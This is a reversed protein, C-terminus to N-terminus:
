TVRLGLPTSRIIQVTIASLAFVIVASFLNEINPSIRSLVAIFVPHILYIGLSFPVLNQVFVPLRLHLNLALLILPLAVAYQLVGHYFGILLAGVLCLSCFIVGGTMDHGAGDQSGSGWIAVGLAVAPLGFVWQAPGDPLTFSSLLAFSALSGLGAVVWLKTPDIQALFSRLAVCCPISIAIFPLFWLHIAPGTLLDSWEFWAFPSTGGDITQLLAYLLSWFAFPVLFRKMAQWSTTTQRNSALAFLVALSIFIPLAAYGLAAGPAKVHFLVIGFAGLVRLADISGIRDHTPHAVQAPAGFLDTFSM